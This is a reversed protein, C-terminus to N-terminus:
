FVSIVSCIRISLLYRKQTMAAHADSFSECADTDDLTRSLYTMMDDAPCIECVYIRTCTYMM